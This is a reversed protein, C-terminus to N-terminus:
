RSFFRSVAPGIHRHTPRDDKTCYAHNGAKLQAGQEWLCEAETLGKSVRKFEEVEGGITLLVIVTLTFTEM